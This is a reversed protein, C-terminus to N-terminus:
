CFLLSLLLFVRSLSLHHAEASSIEPQFAVNVNPSPKAWIRVSPKLGIKMDERLWIQAALDDGKEM